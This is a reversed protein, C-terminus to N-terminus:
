WTGTYSVPVVGFVATRANTEFRESPTMRYWDRSFPCLSHSGPLAILFFHYPRAQRGSPDLAHTGDPPARRASPKREPNADCRPTSHAHTELHCGAAACVRDCVVGHDTHM